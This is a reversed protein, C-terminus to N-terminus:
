RSLREWTLLAHVSPSSLCPPPLHRLHRRQREVVVPIVPRRHELALLNCRLDPIEGVNAREPAGWARGNRQRWVRIADRTGVCACHRAFPVTHTHSHCGTPTPLASAVHCAEAWAQCASESASGASLSLQPVPVPALAHSVCVHLELRAVRDHHLEVHVDAFEGERDVTQGDGRSGRGLSCGDGSQRETRAYM